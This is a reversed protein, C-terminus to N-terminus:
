IVPLFEQKQPLIQGCMIQLVIPLFNLNNMFSVTTIASQIESSTSGRKNSLSVDGHCRFCHQQYLASGQAVLEPSPTNPVNQIRPTTAALDPTVDFGNTCAQFVCVSVFGVVISFIKIFNKRNNIKSKM